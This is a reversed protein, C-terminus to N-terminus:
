GAVTPRLFPQLLRLLAFLSGPSASYRSSPPALAAGVLKRKKRAIEAVQSGAMNEKEKYFKKRAENLDRPIYEEVPDIELVRGLRSRGRPNQFSTLPSSLIELDSSSSSSSSQGGEDESLGLVGSWKEFWVSM